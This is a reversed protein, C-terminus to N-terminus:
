TNLTYESSLTSCIQVMTNVHNSIPRFPANIVPNHSVWPTRAPTFLTVDPHFTVYSVWCTLTPNCHLSGVGDFLSWVWWIRAWSRWTRHCRWRYAIFIVGAGGSFSATADELEWVQAKFPSAAWKFAGGATIVTVAAAGMVVRDTVDTSSGAQLYSAENEM